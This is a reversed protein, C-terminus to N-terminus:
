DEESDASLEGFSMSTTTFIRRVGNLSGSPRRFLRNRRVHDALHPHGPLPVRQQAHEDGEGDAARQRQPM